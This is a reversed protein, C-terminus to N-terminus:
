CFAEGLLPLGRSRRRALLPEGDLVTEVAMGFQSGDGVCEGIMKGRYGACIVVRRIGRAHLLNLAHAIFPLGNVDILAKPISETVPRLRTALGGALIVIPLM